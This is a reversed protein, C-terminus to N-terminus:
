VPDLPLTPANRELYLAVKRLRLPSDGSWGACLNCRQCLLGRVRKTYHDHDIHTGRGPMLPEGCAACRGGQRKHLKWFGDLTLGYEFANQRLRETEVVDPRARYAARWAQYAPSARKAAMRAKVDPRQAYERANKRRRELYEPDKSARERHYAAARLRKVKAEPSLTRAKTCPVCPGSPFREFSGCQPCPTGVRAKSRARNCPACHRSEYRETSGCRRCPKGTKTSRHGM